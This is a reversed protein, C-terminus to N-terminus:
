DEVVEGGWAAGLRQVFESLDVIEGSDEHQLLYPEGCLSGHDPFTITFTLRTSECRGTLIHMTPCALSWVIPPEPVLLISYGSRNPVDVVILLLEGHYKAVVLETDSTSTFTRNGDDDQASFSRAAATFCVESPERATTISSM